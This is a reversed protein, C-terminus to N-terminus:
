SREWWNYPSEVVDVDDKKAVRTMDLSASRKGEAEADRVSAMAEARAGGDDWSRRSVPLSEPLDEDWMAGTKHRRVQAAQGGMPSPTGSMREQPRWSMRADNAEQQDRLTLIPQDHYGDAGQAPSQSQTRQSEVSQDRSIRKQEDYDDRLEEWRGYNKHRQKERRHHVIGKHIMYPAGFLLSAMVASSPFTTSLNRPNDFLLLPKRPQLFKTLIITERYFDL